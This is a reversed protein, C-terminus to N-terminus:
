ESISKKIDKVILQIKKRGNWENISISGVIDIKSGVPYNTSLDGKNWMLCEILSNSRSNTVVLKLHDKNRGLIKNFKISVGSVAFCPTPNAQGYPELENILKKLKLTLYSFPLQCDISLKAVLQDELIVKKAKARMKKVLDKLGSTETSLGAAMPHGGMELVDEKFQRLFEIINVGPVSRGSAKAVKERISFVLCPKNFKKSIRGAILGIVGEHFEKSGIVLLHEDKQKVVQKEAQLVLSSTLDKRAENTVNLEAAFEESLKHDNNILLDLAKKGHKLRGMANIRPGILFGVARSDIEKGQLRATKILKKLGLRKTKNLQKLGFKVIDRNSNTLPVMDAVTAITLLDLQEAAVESSLEKSLFWAVGAGCLKSTQVVAFAEPLENEPIHHDTIIVDIGLKVLKKVPKHAVIGNDVTIVLGPKSDKLLDDLAKESLGYGHKERHPIFTDVNAELAVLSEWLIATACIGDADYDGVVVIKENNSIAKKIRKISKELETLNIGVQKPNITNPDTFSLKQDKSTPIKRNKLLVSLLQEWSEVEGKYLYNWQM